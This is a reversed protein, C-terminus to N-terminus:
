ALARWLESIGLDEKPAHQLLVETEVDTTETITDDSNGDLVLFMPDELAASLETLTPRIGEEENLTAVIVLVSPPSGDKEM